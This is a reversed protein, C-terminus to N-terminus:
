LREQSFLINIVLTTSLYVVRWRKTYSIARYIIDRSIEFM